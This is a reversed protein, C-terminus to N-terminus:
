VFVKRPRWINEETNFHLIALFRGDLSYARSYSKETPLINNADLVPPNGTKIAEEGAADVTVAPLDGLVSDIPHLYHEWDGRKVAEELAEPTVADEIRFIGYQTRVLTKMYAGCGLKEGLDHALSRIYTGRSCEIELTVVPSQWDLLALRYVTIPRSEREVTRGARALNYLPQGQHKLASYMPPVQRIDGRFGELATELMERTISTADGRATIKGEGDYTDTSVGLEVDARYVKHAEMMFEVIRTGKGLCIPLVGTAEPDLTGAHGARREGTLRKVMAVTGFSTKGAPKNINLIGDMILEIGSKKKTFSLLFIRFEFISIRFL